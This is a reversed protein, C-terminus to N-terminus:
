GIYEPLEVFFTSGIDQETTFWITGGTDIIINKSIALGLGTGSSKTTFNPIFLKDQLDIPVGAGNDSVMVRFNSDHKILEINVKIQREKEVSQIANNILNIFVRKLKENDAFIYAENINNFEFNINNVNDNKIFLDTTEKLITCLNTKTNETAPMKAFNSFETAIASLADIQTLLIKAVKGFRKEFDPANEVQALQLHQIHLRMPTLPNKIEHAIQKAMERWATERESKLLLESSKHLEDIMGNYDEILNGIEDRSHYDIKENPKGLKIANMKEHILRLPKTIKNSILIAILITIIILLMYINVVATILGSMERKIIDQNAFYPLNLYALVENNNNIFPLYASLYKLEGIREDHVFHAKNLHRMHRYAEANMRKSILSKDFIEERSSALLVGNTSYLNIDTYFVNSFKVLLYTLYDYIGEDLKNETALKHELEIIVSQIKEEINSNNKSNYQQINYYITGGGILLLSFTITSIISFQIKNKFGIKLNKFQNPFKHLFSIITFVIHFYVFIYSLMILIDLLSFIPNSVIITIEDDPHYILHKYGDMKITSFENEKHKYIVTSLSYPFRGSETVLTGDKYKAHSYEYLKSNNNNSGEILLEPYGLAQRQLKSNLDIFLSIRLSDTPNVFNLEALYSIRGNMNDLFYFSSNPIIQGTTLIMEDFFGRCHVSQNDIENIISDNNGCIFLQMDYKTWFGNFYTKQLYTYLENDTTQSNYIIDVVQSDGLIQSEISEIFTEALPDRETALNVALVTKIDHERKVSIRYIEVVTYLSSIFLILILRSYILDHKGFRLWIIYAYFIVFFAISYFSISISLFYLVVFVILAVILSIILYEQINIIRQMVRIIKDAFLLFSFLLLSIIFFAIFTAFSIDFIRNVEFNIISNLILGEFLKDIFVFFLVSLLVGIGAYLRYIGVHLNNHLHSYFLKNISIYYCLTFIFIANLLFDGLSSFLYSEAFYIPEFLNFNIFGSSTIFVFLLYRIIFLLSVFAIFWFVSGHKSQRKSFWKILLLLFFLVAIFYILLAINSSSNDYNIANKQVLSFLVEGDRNKVLNATDSNIDLSIDFSSSINFYNAFENVLLPNEFSYSKKILVMGIFSYRGSQETEVYYWANGMFLIHSEKFDIPLYDDFILENNNWYVITDNRYVLFVSTENEIQKEFEQANKILWNTEKIENFSKSIDVLERKLEETKSNLTEQFLSIDITEFGNSNQKNDAIYGIIAFAIFLFLFSYEGLKRILRKSTSINSDM